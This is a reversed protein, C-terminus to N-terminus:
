VLPLALRDALTVPPRPRDARLRRFYDALNEGTEAWVLEGQRANDDCGCCWVWDNYLGPDALYSRVVEEPMETATACKVHYYVRPVGDLPGPRRQGPPLTPLAARRDAPVQKPHAAAEAPVHLPNAMFRCGSGTPRADGVTRQHHATDVRRLM